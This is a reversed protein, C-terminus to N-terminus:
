NKGSPKSFNKCTKEPLVWFCVNGNRQDDKLGTIAIGVNVVVTVKVEVLRSSNKSVARSKM